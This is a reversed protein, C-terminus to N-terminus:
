LEDRDRAPHSATEATAEHHQAPEFYEGLARKLPGLFKEFRRWKAVSTNYLPRRVQAGFAM